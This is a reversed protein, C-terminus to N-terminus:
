DYELVYVPSDPNGDAPESVVPEHYQRYNPELHYSQRFMRQLHLLLQM